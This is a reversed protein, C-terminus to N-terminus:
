RNASSAVVLFEAATLDKSAEPLSALAALKRAGSPSPAFCVTEITGVQYGSGEFLDLVSRRTFFRIHTGSLISYPVYDFRGELLDAV